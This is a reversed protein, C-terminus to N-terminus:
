SSETAPSPAPPQAYEAALRECRTQLDAALEDIDGMRWAPLLAAHRILGLWYPAQRVEDLACRLHDRCDAEAGAADAQRLYIGVSTGALLLQLGLHQGATDRPLARVLLIVRMAFVQSRDLIEQDSL